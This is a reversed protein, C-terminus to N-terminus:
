LKNKEVMGQHKGETARHMGVMVQPLRKPKRAMALHKEVMVLHLKKPKKATDQLLKSPKKAMALPQRKQQRVTVPLKERQKQAMDRRM